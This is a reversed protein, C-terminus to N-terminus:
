FFSELIPFHDVGVGIVFFKGLLASIGVLFTGDLSSFDERKKREFKERRKGDDEGVGGDNSLMRLVRRTEAHAVNGLRANRLLIPRRLFLRFPIFTDLSVGYGAAERKKRATHGKKDVPSDSTSCPLFGEPNALMSAWHYGAHFIPFFCARSNLFSKSLTKKKEEEKRQEQILSISISQNAYYNNTYLLSIVIHDQSYPIQM